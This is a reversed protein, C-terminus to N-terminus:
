TLTVPSTTSVFPHYVGTIGGGEFGTATPSITNGTIILAAGAEPTVDLGESLKSRSNNGAEALTLVLGIGGVLGTGKTKIVGDASVDKRQNYVSFGVTCGIHDPAEATESVGTFTVSGVLLGTATSSDAIGYQAASFVTAKSM